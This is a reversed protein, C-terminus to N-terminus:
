FSCSSFLVANFAFFVGCCVATWQVAQDKTAKDRGQREREKRVRGEVSGFQSPTHTGWGGDRSLRSLDLVHALIEEQKPEWIESDCGAEGGLAKGGSSQLRCSQMQYYLSQRKFVTCKCVALAHKVFTGYLPKAVYVEQAHLGAAASFPGQGVHSLKRRRALILLLGCLCPMQAPATGLGHSWLFSGDSMNCSLFCPCSFSPLLLCPNGELNGTSHLLSLCIYGAVSFYCRAPCLREASGVFQATASTEVACWQMHYISPPLCYCSAIGVIRCFLKLAQAERLGLGPLKFANLLLVFVRRSSHITISDKRWMHLEALGGM